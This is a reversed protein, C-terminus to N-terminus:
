ILVRILQRLLELIYKIGRDDIEKAINRKNAAPHEGRTRKRNPECFSTQESEGEVRRPKSRWM